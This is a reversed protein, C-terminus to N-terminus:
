VSLSSPTSGNMTEHTAPREDDQQEDAALSAWASRGQGREPWGAREGSCGTRGPRRARGSAAWSRAWGSSTRPSARSTCSSCAPHTGDAEGGRRGRGEGGTGGGRRGGRAAAEGSDDDQRDPGSRGAGRGQSEAAVSPSTEPERGPMKSSRARELHHAGGVRRDEQRARRGRSVRRGGGVECPRRSTARPCTAPRPSPPRHRCGASPADAQGALPGGAAPVRASRLLWRAPRSRGRGGRKWISFRYLSRWSASSMM